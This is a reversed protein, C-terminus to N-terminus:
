VAQSALDQKKFQCFQCLEEQKMACRNLLINKISQKIKSYHDIVQIRSIDTSPENGSEITEFIEDKDM